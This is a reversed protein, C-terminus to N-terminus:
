VTMRNRLCIHMHEYTYTHVTSALPTGLLLSDLPIYELCYLFMLM